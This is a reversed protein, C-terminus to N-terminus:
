VPPRLGCWRSAQHRHDAILRYGLDFLWRGPPIAILCWIPFGWGSRRLVWRYADAGRLLTGDSLLLSMDRLLDRTTLGTREAVWPEQLPAPVLGLRTLTPTLRPVAQACVGCSADYLVWGVPPQSPQSSAGQLSAPAPM